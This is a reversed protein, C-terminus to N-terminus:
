RHGSGTDEPGSINNSSRFEPSGVLCELLTRFSERLLDMAEPKKGLDMYATIYTNSSEFEHVFPATVHIAVRNDLSKRLETNKVWVWSYVAFRGSEDVEDRCQLAIGIETGTNWGTKLYMESFGDETEAVFSPDDARIGVVALQQKFERWISRLAVEVEAEFAKVASTVERYHEINAEIFARARSDIPM